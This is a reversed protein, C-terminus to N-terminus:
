FGGIFTHLSLFLLGDKRHYTYAKSQTICMPLRKIRGEDIPRGVLNARIYPYGQENNQGFLWVSDQSVLLRSIIPRFEPASWDKLKAKFHAPMGNIFAKKDTESVLKRKFATKLRIPKRDGRLPILNVGAAGNHCVALLDSDGGM